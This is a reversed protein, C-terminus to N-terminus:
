DTSGAGPLQALIHEREEDSVRSIVGDFKIGNRSFRKVQKLTHYADRKEIFFQREGTKTWKGREVNYLELQFM